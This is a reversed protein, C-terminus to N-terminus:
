EETITIQESDFGLAEFAPGMDLSAESGNKDFQTDGLYISFIGAVFRRVFEASIEMQVDYRPRDTRIIRRAPGVALTNITGHETEIHATRDAGKRIAEAMTDLKVLDEGLIHLTYAPNDYATGYVQRPDAPGGPLETLAITVDSTQVLPIMGAYIAPQDIQGLRTRGCVSAGCISVVEALAHRRIAEATAM